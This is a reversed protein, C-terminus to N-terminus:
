RRIHAYTYGPIMNDLAHQDCMTHYAKDGDPNDQTKGYILDGAVNYGDAACIECPLVRNDQCSECLGGVRLRILAMGNGCGWCRGKTANTTGCSVCYTSESGYEVLVETGPQIQSVCCQDCYSRIIPGDWDYGYFWVNVEPQPRPVIPIIAINGSVDLLIKYIRRARALENMAEELTLPIAEDVADTWLPVPGNSKRHARKLYKVEDLSEWELTFRKDNDM